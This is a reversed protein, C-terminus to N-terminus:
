VMGGRVSRYYIERFSEVDLTSKDTSYAIRGGALIAVRDGMSLGRELNHTTMLVTRGTTGVTALLEHLMEAAHQDLGTDPEDLLLVSPQHLIARAIALRQQMGRSFTRVPDHRRGELGVQRLVVEIRDKLDPVDYMRGYFGLNEDPTLDGYLLTQHSVLGVHRRIDVSADALDFGGIWVTGSTARSLTALIRILTTKGAGNPGMLTLFQGDAVELGIGRLVAKHGFSKVLGRIEIM